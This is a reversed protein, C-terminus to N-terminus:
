RSLCGKVHCGGQVRFTIFVGRFTVFLYLCARMLGCIDGGRGPFGWSCMGAEPSFVHSTTCVAAGCPFSINM